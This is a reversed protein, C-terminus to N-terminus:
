HNHHTQSSQPNTSYTREQCCLSLLCGKTNNKDTEYDNQIQICKQKKNRRIVFYYLLIFQGFAILYLSKKNRQLFLSINTMNLQSPSLSFYGSGYKGKGLYKKKAGYSDKSGIGNDVQEVVQRRNAIQGGRGASTSASVSGSEVDSYVPM